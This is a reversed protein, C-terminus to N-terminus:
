NAASLDYKNKLKQIKHILGKFNNKKVQDYLSFVGLCYKSLSVKEIRRKKMEEMFLSNINNLKKSEAVIIEPYATRREGNVFQIHFDLTVKEQLHIDYLTIRDYIVELKAELGDILPTKEQRREKLTVGKNTKQKIEFFSTGDEYTRTRMKMRNGHGNHHAMYYSLETSDYYVTSYVQTYKGHLSVLQYHEKMCNLISPLDNGHFLFKTDRRETFLLQPKISNFNISRFSQLGSLDM